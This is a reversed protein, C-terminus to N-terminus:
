VGAVRKKHELELAQLMLRLGMSYADSANLSVLSERVFHTGPFEKPDLQALKENLFEGHQGPWRRAVTSHAFSTVLEVVLHAYAATHMADFGAQRMTSSFKEFFLIGYDTEGAQVDQVMRYRNHTSVYSAIGPYRLLARYFANAVNEINELWHPQERPWNEIVERWFANMVGSTLPDRGGLYYHILGPTVGLERAVLVVSLDALPVTKTLQLSLSLVTARDLAGTTAGAPRGPRRGTKRAAATKATATNASSM